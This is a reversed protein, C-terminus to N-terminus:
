QGAQEPQRQGAVAAPQANPATNVGGIPEVVTESAAVAEAVGVPMQQDSPMVGLSEGGAVAAGATTPTVVDGAEDESRDPSHADVLSALTADDVTPASADAAAGAEASLESDEDEDEEDGPEAPPTFPGRGETAIAITRDVLKREFLENELLGRVYDSSYLQRMRGDPDNPGTLRDIEADVDQPNVSVSERTAIERLVLSNRLRRVAEPRLEERLQEATKNELRLHVELTQGHNQALHNRLEEIQSDLQKDIMAAPLEFAAAAAMAEIVESSVEGRAKQREARLLDRRVARRLAALTTYRGNSATGAFDDDLPLQRQQEVKKLTVRYDLTKGRMDVDAQQDDEAFDIRVDQTEGVTMGLLAERLQPLLNDQGLTFVSDRLPERFQQDGEQVEVDLTVRDGEQVPRPEAPEEWPSHQTQVKALTEAVQEDTVDVSRPEVRVAQYDGLEIVPYVQVTVKFALPEVQYIEVEPEGVPTLNEQELAKQYLPDLLDKDAQEILIERGLLQEIIRRPAKGPRFGPLRVQTVVKRYARELAKEFEQEDTSIDLVVQSEPLREAVVNM